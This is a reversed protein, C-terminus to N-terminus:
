GWLYAAQIGESLAKTINVGNSVKCLPIKMSGLESILHDVGEKGGFSEADILVVVPKLGRQNLEEIGILFGDGTTPSIVIVTSGRPLNKVQTEIVAEIPLKGESQLLALAELIKGLQRAGRDSPLVTLNRGASVYGVARGHKLFYRALSAAITVSYEITSPPLPIDIVPRWKERESVPITKRPLEAQVSKTADVFIWVEALPDLEFEKVILRNMRATSLWHIRNLPDGTDYDRVGAANPTIQHTRRRLAEGGSLWGSPSPFVQIEEIIPYVLLSNQVLYEYSVPFLGFFDGSTMISKGLPFVGRETMRTRVLYTRTEGGKIMGLVHSGRAGPLPSEDRIEVWLRPLRNHNIIEFREEFIQGVQSRQTRADRRFELGRLALRSYGWSGLLLLVWLYGLNYYFRAGTVVGAIISTVALIFVVKLSSTM